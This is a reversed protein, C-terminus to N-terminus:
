IIFSTRLVIKLFFNIIIIVITVRAHPERWLYPFLSLSLKSPLLKHVYIHEGSNIDRETPALSEPTAVVRRKGVPVGGDFPTPPLLLLNAASGLFLSKDRRFTMLAGQRIRTHLRRM